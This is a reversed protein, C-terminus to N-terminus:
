DRVPCEGGEERGQDRGRGEVCVDRGKVVDRGDRYAVDDHGTNKGVRIGLQRPPEPRAAVDRESVIFHAFPSTYGDVEHMHTYPLAPSVSLDRRDTMCESRIQHDPIESILHALRSGHRPPFVPLRFLLPDPDHVHWCHTYSDYDHGGNVHDGYVRSV